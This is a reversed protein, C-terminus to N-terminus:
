FSVKMTMKEEDIKGGSNYNPSYTITFDFSNNSEIFGEM